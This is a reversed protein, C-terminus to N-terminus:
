VVTRVVWRWHTYRLQLITYQKYGQTHIYYVTYLIYYIIYQICTWTDEREREREPSATM